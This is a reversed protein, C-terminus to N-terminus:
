RLVRIAAGRQFPRLLVTKFDSRNQVTKDFWVCYATDDEVSEVTMVPGGSKLQVVDGPNFAM